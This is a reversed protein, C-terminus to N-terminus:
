AEMKEGEASRVRARADCLVAKRKKNVGGTEGVGGCKERAVNEGSANAEFCFCGCAYFKRTNRKPAFSPFRVWSRLKPLKQKAM